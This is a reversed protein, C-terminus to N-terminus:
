KKTSTQYQNKFLEWQKSFPTIKNWTAKDNDELAKRAKTASIDEDTRAIEILQFDDTVVMQDRYKEVMKSYAPVRDTGCIWGSIEFPAEQSIKVIDANKVLHVGAIAKNHKLADQYVKAFYKTPFPNKESIKSDDRDVMCLICPNGTQKYAQECCQVHATTLPQFRGILINYHM